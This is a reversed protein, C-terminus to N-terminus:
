GAQEDHEEKIPTVGNVTCDRQACGEAEAPTLGNAVLDLGLTPILVRGHRTLRVGLGRTKLLGGGRGRGPDPHHTNPTQSPTKNRNPPIIPSDM